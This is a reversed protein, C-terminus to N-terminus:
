GPRVLLVAAVVVVIGLMANWRAYTAARRRLATAEASGPVARGAAPGHIFDHVASIVIMVAVAGLKIGLSIGTTTRWFDRSALVDDWRLWGRYALNIAGTIVLIAIAIWGILRFREGITTFLRQRLEPPEVTRLVPAGAVALFFMGGLWLLAALIHLTVSAYYGFTM